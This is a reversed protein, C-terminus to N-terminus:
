SGSGDDTGTLAAEIDKVEQPKEAAEQVVVIELRKHTTKDDDIELLPKAANYATNTSEVITRIKSPDKESKILKANAAIAGTHVSLVAVDIKDRWSIIFADTKSNENAQKKADLQDQEQTVTTNYRVRSQPWSLGDIKIAEKSWRALSHRPIDQVRAVQDFSLGRKVYLDRAQDKQEDTYRAAM